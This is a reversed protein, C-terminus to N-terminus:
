EYFKVVEIVEQQLKDQDYCEGYLENKIQEVIVKVLFKINIISFKMEASKRTELFSKLKAKENIPISDNYLEPERGDAFDTIVKSVRKKKVFSLDNDDTSYIIMIIANSYDLSNEQKILKAILQHTETFDTVHITFLKNSEFKTPNLSVNSLSEDMVMSIIRSHIYSKLSEENRLLSVHQTTKDKDDPLYFYECDELVKLDICNLKNILNGNIIYEIIKDDLIKCSKDVISEICEKNYLESVINEPLLEYIVKSKVGYIRKYSFNDDFSNTIIAKLYIVKKSVQFIPGGSFGEVNDRDAYDPLNEDIRFFMNENDVLITGEHEIAKFDSTKVLAKPYGLIWCSSDKGMQTCDELCLEVGNECRENIKLISIDLGTLKCVYSSDLKRGTCDFVEFEHGDINHEATLVYSHEAFGLSIWVGSGTLKSKVKVLASHLCGVDVM